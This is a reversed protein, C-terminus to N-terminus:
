TYNMKIDLREKGTDFHLMEEYDLIVIMILRSLNRTPGMQPSRTPHIQYM